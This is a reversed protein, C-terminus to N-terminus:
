VRHRGVIHRAAEAFSDFVPFSEALGERALDARLDRLGSNVGVGAGGLNKATLLDSISDGLYWAEGAELSYKALIERGFKPSPKRYIPEGGPVEPSMCSDSFLAGRDIQRLMESTCSEAQEATFYGRGIGSQNTHLVLRCGSQILVDLGEVVTPLLEVDAPDCLYPVHRILTGDRDLFVCPSGTAPM